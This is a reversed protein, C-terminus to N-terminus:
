SIQPMNGKFVIAKKLNFRAATKVSSGVVTGAVQVILSSEVSHNLESVSPICIYSYGHVSNYNAQKFKGLGHM